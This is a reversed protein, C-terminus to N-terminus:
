NVQGFSKTLKLFFNFPTKHSCERVSLSNTTESNMAYINDVGILSNTLSRLKKLSHKYFILPTLLM